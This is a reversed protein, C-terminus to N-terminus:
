TERYILRSRSQQIHSCCVSHKSPSRWSWPHNTTGRCSFITLSIYKQPPQETVTYSSVSVINMLLGAWTQFNNAFLTTSQESTTKVFVVAAWRTSIDKSQLLTNVRAVWKRQATELDRDQESEPDKLLANDLISQMMFAMHKHTRGEDSLYDSLLRNLKQARQTTKAAPMPDLGRHTPIHPSCFFFTQCSQLNLHSVKQLVGHSKVFM